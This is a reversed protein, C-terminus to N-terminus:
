LVELTHPTFGLFPWLGLVASSEGHREPGHTTGQEADTVFGAEHLHGTPERLEADLQNGRAARALRERIRSERDAINGFDRAKGFDEVAADLRQVGADVGADEGDAVIGLM